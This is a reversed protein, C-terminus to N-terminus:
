VRAQSALLAAVDAPESRLAAEWDMPPPRSSPSYGACAVCQPDLAAECQSWAEARVSGDRPERVQPRLSPADRFAGRATPTPM